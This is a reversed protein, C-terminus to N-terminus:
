SSSLTWMKSNMIRCLNLFGPGVRLPDKPHHVRSKLINSLLKRYFHTHSIASSPSFLPNELREENVDFTSFCAGVGADSAVFGSGGFVVM